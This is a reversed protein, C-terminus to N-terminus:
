FRSLKNKSPVLVLQADAFACVDDQSQQASAATMFVIEGAGRPVEVLGTITQWGAADPPTSAVFSANYPRATWKGDSTKWGIGIAGLGRGQSKVRSRVAYVEGPAVKLIYGAVAEKAGSIKLQGNACQFVGTSDEEQWTFWGKPAKGDTQAFDGNPLLNTPTKTEAFFSRAFGQPDKARRLANIAGPLKQPWAQADAKGGPWWRAQEGYLWVLGDSAALASAVNASLRRAPTSDTRDITWTSGPPNVHADLYLSQGIRLARAFKDQNEPSLFEPLRLRQRTFAANYAEPSNARYGIDETGEIITITAPAVDMWGDVFAPQLGYTHPELARTLNGSDLMPLMDSFLRYSFITIDPFEEAVARMVERGRQRAKARYEDFTHEKAKAQAGYRFQSFPKTYPEADYLLGRLNGQKALRALLRWHNVVERWAADDFWDVDGPNSYLMLYTERCTTPKAAQLDALATAFESWQWAERSFANHAHIDNGKETRRTPRITTGDFVGWKEFEALNQRFQAPSPVDWGTVILPPKAHAFITLAFLALFLSCFKM